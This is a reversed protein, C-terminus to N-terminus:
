SFIHGNWLFPSPWYTLHAQEAKLDPFGINWSALMNTTTKENNDSHLSHCSDLFVIYRQLTVQKCTSHLIAKPLRGRESICLFNDLIFSGNYSITRELHLTKALIQVCHCLWRALGYDQVTKIACHNCIIEMYSMFTYVITHFLRPCLSLPCWLHWM